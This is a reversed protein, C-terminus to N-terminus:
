RGHEKEFKERFAKFDWLAIIKNVEALKTSPRIIYNDLRPDYTIKAGVKATSTESKHKLKTKM